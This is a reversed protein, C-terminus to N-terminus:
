QKRVVYTLRTHNPAHQVPLQNLIRPVNSKQAQFTHPHYVGHMIPRSACEPRVRSVDFAQGPELRGKSDRDKPGGGQYARRPGWSNSCGPSLEVMGDRTSSAGKSTLHGKIPCSANPAGETHEVSPIKVHGVGSSSPTALSMHLDQGQDVWRVLEAVSELLM